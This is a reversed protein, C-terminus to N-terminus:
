QACCADPDIMALQGMGYAPDSDGAIQLFKQQPDSRYGIVQSEMARDTCRRDAYALHGDTTFLANQLKSGIGRELASFKLPPYKVHAM